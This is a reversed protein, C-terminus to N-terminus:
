RDARRCTQMWDALRVSRDARLNAGSRTAPYPVDGHQGVWLVHNFRVSDVRDEATFDM